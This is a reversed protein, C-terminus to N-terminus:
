HLVGKGEPVGSWDKTKQKTSQIIIITRKKNTMTNDTRRRSVAEFLEKPIKLRIRIRFQLLSRCPTHLLCIDLVTQLYWLPLWFGYISSSCVVCHGFSSNSSVLPTILIRLDFFFLCCLPWFFLKFIGCPYDSDTFLLLVSLVITMLLTQLYWLPLWFGYISSSCVACHDFSSNSSVM